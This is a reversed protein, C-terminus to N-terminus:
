NRLDDDEYLPMPTRMRTGGKTATTMMTLATADDVGIASVTPPSANNALFLPTNVGGGESAGAEANAKAARDNAGEAKAGKAKKSKASPCASKHKRTTAATKINKYEIKQTCLCASACYAFIISLRAGCWSNDKILSCSNDIILAPSSCITLHQDQQETM